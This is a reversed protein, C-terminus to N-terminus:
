TLLDALKQATERLSQRLEWPSLVEAGAGWGLIWPIIESTDNVHYVM